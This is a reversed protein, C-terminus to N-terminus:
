SGSRKQKTFLVRNEHSRYRFWNEKRMVSIDKQEIFFSLFQIKQTYKEETYLEPVRHKTRM